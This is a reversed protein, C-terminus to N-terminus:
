EYHKWGDLGVLYFAFLNRWCEAQFLRRWQGAAISDVVFDIMTLPYVISWIPVRIWDREIRMVRGLFPIKEDNSM